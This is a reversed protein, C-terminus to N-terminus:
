KKVGVIMSGKKSGGLAKHTTGVPFEIRDGPCYTKRGKKDVITLEGSLIVHVTHENHTHERSDFNAEIPCVMIDKFGEKELIKIWKERNM